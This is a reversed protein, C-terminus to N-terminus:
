EHRFTRAHHSTKMQLENVAVKDRRPRVDLPKPFWGAASCFMPGMLKLTAAVHPSWLIPQSCAIHVLRVCAPSDHERLQLRNPPLVLRVGDGLLSIESFTGAKGSRANLPPGHDIGCNTGWIQSAWNVFTQCIRWLQHRCLATKSRVFEVKSNNTVITDENRGLSSSLVHFGVPEM